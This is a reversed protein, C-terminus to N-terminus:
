GFLIDMAVSVARHLTTIRKVRPEIRRLATEAEHRDRYSAVPEWNGEDAPDSICLYWVSDSEGHFLTLSATM